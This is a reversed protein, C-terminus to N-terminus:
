CSAPRSSSQRDQLERLDFAVLEGAVVQAAPALAIAESSPEVPRIQTLDGARM